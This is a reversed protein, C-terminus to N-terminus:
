PVVLLRGFVLLPFQLTNIAPQSVHFHHLGLHFMPVSFRGHMNQLRFTHKRVLSSFNQAEWLLWDESLTYLAKGTVCDVPGKAIQQMLASVLFFLHQGVSEQVLVRVRSTLSSVNTLSDLKKRSRNVRILKVGFFPPLLETCVLLDSCFADPKSLM